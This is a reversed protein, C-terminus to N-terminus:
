GRLKGFINKNEKKRASPRRGVGGGRLKRVLNQTYESLQKWMLGKLDTHPNEALDYAFNKLTRLAEHGIAHLSETCLINAVTWEHSPLLRYASLLINVLSGRGRQLIPPTSYIPGIGDSSGFGAQRFYYQALHKQRMRIHFHVDGARFARIKYARRPPLAGFIFSM